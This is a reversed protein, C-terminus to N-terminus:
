AVLDGAGGGVDLRCSRGVGGFKLVVVETPIGLSLICDASDEGSAVITDAIGNGGGFVASKSSGGIGVVFEVAFSLYRNAGTAYSDGIGGGVIGDTIDDTGGIGFGMDGLILVVVEIATGFEDIGFRLIGVVNIVFNAVEFFDDVCGRAFCEVSVVVEIPTGINFIGFVDNRM